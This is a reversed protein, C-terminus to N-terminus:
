PNQVVTLYNSVGWGVTNENYPNKLLWWVYGDTDIPGDEVIFVETDKAIYPVESSVGATVHLRLGDGGTGSVQIYDGLAIDGRAQPVQQSPTPEPTATQTIIPALPTATSAEIINLLATGPAQTIQTAKASWLVGLLVGFVGGAFIIAGLIVKINLWARLSRYM